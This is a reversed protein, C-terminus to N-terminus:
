RARRRAAGGEYRDGTTAPALGSTGILAAM